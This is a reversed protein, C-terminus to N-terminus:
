DCWVFFAMTEVLGFVSVRHNKHEVWYINPPEFDLIGVQTVTVRQQEQILGEGTKIKNGFQSVLDTVDQGVFVPQPKFLGFNCPVGGLNGELGQFFAQTTTAAESM